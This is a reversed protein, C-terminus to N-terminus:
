LLSLKVSEIINSVEEDTLSPYIPISVAREWIWDTAAYGRLGLYRHLPKYVPRMCAVGRKAMAEIFGQANDVLVVYRYYIHERNAPVTPIALDFAQFIRNYSAAINKRKEILLSIKKLQNIGLAAQIDTM